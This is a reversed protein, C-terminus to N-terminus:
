SKIISFLDTFPGKLQNGLDDLEEDCKKKSCVLDSLIFKAISSILLHLGVPYLLSKM